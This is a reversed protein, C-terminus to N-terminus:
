IERLAAESDTLSNYPLRAAQGCWFSSIPPSGQGSSRYLLTIGHNSLLQAQRDPIIHRFIDQAQHLEIRLGNTALRRVKSRQRQSRVESGYDKGGGRLEAVMEATVPAGM